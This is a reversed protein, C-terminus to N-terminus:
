DHAEGNRTMADPIWARLRWVGDAQPGSDLTGGLLGVRERLGRLGQGAGISPANPLAGDNEVVVATGEASHDVLIVARTANRSYRLANTLGEQVIRHVALEVAPGSERRGRVTLQAPLGAERFRQVLEPLDKATPQPALPASGDERLAGLMGRLDNLASRAAEAVRSIATRAATEDRTRAAGESLTAVVSLTHSLIDHMERAIRARETVVALEEQERARRVLSRLYDRRNRTAIGVLLGISASLILLAADFEDGRAEPPAWPLWPVALSTGVFLLFFLAAAKVTRHVALSFLMIPIAIMDASTAQFASFVGLVLVVVSMAVTWRRRLLVAVTTVILVGVARLVNLPDGLDELIEVQVILLASLIFYGAAVIGDVLWPHRSWWIRARVRWRSTDVLAFEARESEM